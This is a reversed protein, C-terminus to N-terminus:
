AGDEQALQAADAESGIRRQLDIIWRGVVADPEVSLEQYRQYHELAEAPRHLYLDLLVGLNHHALAYNPDTELARLYAQEAEAFKGQKRLVIGLQNNATAHAPNIALAQDLAALAEDHRDDHEYVIALNVYAGPFHPYELIFQELRLEAEVIDSRDLAELAEDYASQAAPSVFLGLEGEEAEIALANEDPRVTGPAGCGHCLLGVAILVAISRLSPRLDDASPGNSFPLSM